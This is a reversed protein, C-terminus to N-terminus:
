IGVFPQVLVGQWADILQKVVQIPVADKTTKVKLTPIVLDAYGKIM